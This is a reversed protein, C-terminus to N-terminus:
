GPTLLTVEICYLVFKLCFFKSRGNIKDSIPLEKWEVFNDGPLEGEREAVAFRSQESYSYHVTVAADVM